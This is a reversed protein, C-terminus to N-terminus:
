KFGARFLLNFSVGAVWQGKSFGNEYYNKKESPEYRYEKGDYVNRYGLSIRGEVMFHRYVPLTYGLTFAASYFRGTTGRKEQRGNRIDFDGYGLALGANFGRFTNDPTFWCRPELTFQSLGWLNDAKGDYSTYSYLFATEVSYRSAFCYEVAGNYMLGGKSYDSGGEGNLDWSSVVGLWPILNTKIGINFPAAQPHISKDKRVPGTKRVSGAKPSTKTKRKVYTTATTATTTTTTTAATEVPTVPAVEGLPEEPGTKGQYYYLDYYPIEPYRLLARSIDQGANSLSFFIDKNMSSPMSQRILTVHVQDPAKKDRNICFAIQESSVGLRMKLQSRIISGRFTARNLDTLDPEKVNNYIFSEILFYYDGKDDGKMLDTYYNFLRQWEVSNVSYEDEYADEGEGFAFRFVNKVANGTDSGIAYLYSIGTWLLALILVLKRMKLCIIM